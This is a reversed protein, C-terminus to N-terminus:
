DYSVEKSSTRRFTSNSRSYTRERPASLPARVSREIMARVTGMMSKQLSPQYSSVMHSYCSWIQGFDPSTRSGAGGCAGRARAIRDPHAIQAVERIREQMMSPSLSSLKLEHIQLRARNQKHTMPIDAATRERGRNESAFGGCATQARDVNCGCAQDSGLARRWRLGESCASPATDVDGGM